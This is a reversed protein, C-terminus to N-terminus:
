KYKSLEAIEKTQQDKMTQAMAKLAASHGTRIEIDAMRLAQQHHQIMMAAFDRDVNGTMPMAPKGNQGMMQKHEEMMAKHLEMSGPDGKMPMGQMAMGQMPMAKMDMAKTDAAPKATKTTPEHASASLAALATALVLAVASKRDIIM